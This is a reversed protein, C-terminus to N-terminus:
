DLARFRGFYVSRDGREFRALNRQKTKVKFIKELCVHVLKRALSTIM